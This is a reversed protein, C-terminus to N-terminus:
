KPVEDFFFADIYVQGEIQDPPYKNAEYWDFYAILLPKDKAYARVRNEWESDSSTRAIQKVERIQSLLRRKAEERQEKSIALQKSTQEKQQEQAYQGLKHAAKIYCGASTLLLAPLLLVLILRKM